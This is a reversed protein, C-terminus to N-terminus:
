DATLVNSFRFAQKRRVPLYSREVIYPVISQDHSKAEISNLGLIRPGFKFKKDLRLRLKYITM